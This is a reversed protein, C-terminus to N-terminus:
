DAGELYLLEEGLSLEDEDDLAELRTRLWDPDALARRYAAEGQAVAWARVDEWVDESVFGMVTRVAELHAPQDLAASLLRMRAKFRDAQEWGLRFAGSRDDVTRAILTWFRAEPMPGPPRRVRLPTCAGPGPELGGQDLWELERKTRGLQTPPPTDVKTAIDALVQEITEVFRLGVQLGAGIDKYDDASLSIDLSWLRPNTHLVAPELKDLVRARISLWRGQSGAVWQLWRDDKSVLQKVVGARQQILQEVPRSLAMRQASRRATDLQVSCIVFLGYRGSADSGAAKRIDCILQRLQTM